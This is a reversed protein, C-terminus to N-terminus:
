QANSIKVIPPLRTNRDRGVCGLDNKFSSIIMSPKFAYLHYADMHILTPGTHSRADATPSHSGSMV